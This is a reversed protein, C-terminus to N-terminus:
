RRLARCLVNLVVSYRLVIHAVGHGFVAWKRRAWLGVAWVAEAAGAWLGWM